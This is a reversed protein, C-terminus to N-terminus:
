TLVFLKCLIAQELPRSIQEENQLLRNGQQADLVDKAGNEWQRVAGQGIFANRLNEWYVPGIIPDQSQLHRMEETSCTQFHMDTVAGTVAAEAGGNHFYSSRGCQKCPGRSLADADSHQSGRRHIVTFDYEELRKLWRALQSKGM